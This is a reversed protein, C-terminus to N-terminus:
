PFLRGEGGVWVLRAEGGARGVIIANQGFRRALEVADAERIGVILLSPEPSWQGDRGVGHGRHYRGGGKRVAAELEGMRRTNEEEPLRVSGPNCATVFAWELGALEPCEEGIRIVFPGSPADDVRYDTARYAAELTPDQM